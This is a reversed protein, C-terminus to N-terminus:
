AFHAAISIARPLRVSMGQVSDDCGIHGGTIRLMPPDARSFQTGAPSSASVKESQISSRISAITVPISGLPL